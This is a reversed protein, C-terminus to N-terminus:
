RTTMQLGPQMMLDRFRYLESLRFGTYRGLLLQAALVFGLIEPYRFMTGVVLHGSLALSITVTVLMTGALTKFASTTGDEAEHTWFREVMHTLIIMPFLALYQTLFIGHQSLMLVTALLVIVIMTLLTATRPVMLLRYGDLVRRLGWGVLVIGIFVGIGWPLSRLDLFALALIAPGFTGYTNLGIVIRFLCVILTALPLLLLFKVLNQEAPGLAYPSLRLWFSKLATPPEAGDAEADGLHEVSIGSAFQAGQGRLWEQDGIHFILHNRPFQRPGFHHYTPCMPLWQGNVWAETWHHVTQDQSGVLILGTLVRAAIGRNRCLAALLRSKGASNGGGDQLCELASQTGPTPQTEMKEVFRYLAQVQDLPSMGDEAQDKAAQSIQDHFCEILDSPRLCDGEAPAADLEKSHAKMQATPHHMGLVCRFCYVLRFQSENTTERHWTLERRDSIAGRRGHELDTGRPFREEFIHQQRVEPPLAVSLTAKPEKAEGKVVMTVRWSSTGSPGHISEGLVAHRHVMLAVSLCVLLAATGACLRTRKM